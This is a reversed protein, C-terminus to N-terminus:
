RAKEMARWIRCFMDGGTLGKGAAVYERYADAGAQIMDPTPMGKPVGVPRILAMKPFNPSVSVIAGDWRCMHWPGPGPLDCIFKTGSIPGCLDGAIMERHTM